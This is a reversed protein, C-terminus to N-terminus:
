CLQQLFLVPRFLGLWAGEGAALALDHVDEILQLAGGDALDQRFEGILGAVGGNAGLEAHEFFLTVNAVLLVAQTVYVNGGHRAVHCATGSKAMEDLREEVAGRFFDHGCKEAALDGADGRFLEIALESGASVKKIAHQALAVM